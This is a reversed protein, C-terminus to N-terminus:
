RKSAPLKYKECVYLHGDSDIYAEHYWGFGANVAQPKSKGAFFRLKKPKFNFFTKVDPFLFGNGWVYLETPQNSLSSSSRSESKFLSFSIATNPKFYGVLMKDYM